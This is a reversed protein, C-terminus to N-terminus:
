MRVIAEGTPTSDSLRHPQNHFNLLQEIKWKKLRSHQVMKSLFRVAFGHHKMGLGHTWLVTNDERPEYISGGFAKQLLQIGQLDDKHTIVGVRKLRDKYSYCGDGDIYGAVWAWTPHNKPKLPGSDKRSAESFEKLDQVKDTIDEGKLENFKDFLRKWHKAKIVMHKIVRPIILNLDRRSQVNWKWADSFTDKEYKIRVSKGLREGLSKVYGQRDVSDAASLALVLYLFTKGSSSKSFKFGLCGDADLLGALYKIETEKFIEM